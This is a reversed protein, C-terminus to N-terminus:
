VLCLREGRGRRTTPPRVVNFLSAKSRRSPTRLRSKGLRTDPPKPRKRVSSVLFLFRVLMYLEKVGYKRVRTRSGGGGGNEAKKAGSKDRDNEM